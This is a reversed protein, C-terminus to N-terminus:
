NECLTTKKKAPLPLVLAIGTAAQCARVKNQIAAYEAAFKADM